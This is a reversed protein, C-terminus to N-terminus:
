SEVTIDILELKSIFITSLYVLYRARLKLFFKIIDIDSLQVDKSYWLLVKQSKRM